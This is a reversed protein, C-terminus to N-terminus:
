VGGRQVEDHEILVLLMTELDISENNFWFMPKNTVFNDVIKINPVSKWGLSSLGQHLQKDDIFKGNRQVRGFYQQVIGLVVDITVDLATSRNVNCQNMEIEGSDNQFYVKPIGERHNCYRQSTPGNITQKFLLDDRKRGKDILTLRDGEIIYKQGSLDSTDYEVVIM